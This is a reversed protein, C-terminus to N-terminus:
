LTDPSILIRPSTMLLPVTNRLIVARITAAPNKPKDAIPITAHSSLFTTGDAGADRSVAGEKVGSGRTDFIGVSCCVSLVASVEFLSEEM